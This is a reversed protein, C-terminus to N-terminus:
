LVGGGLLKYLEYLFKRDSEDVTKVIIELLRAYDFKGCDEVVLYFPSIFLLFEKLFKRASDLRSRSLLIRIGEVDVYRALKSNEKTHIKFSYKPYLERELQTRYEGMGAARQIDVLCYYYKKNISVRRVPCDGIVIFESTFIHDRSVNPLDDPVALEPRLRTPKFMMEELYADVAVAFYPNLWQAFRIALKRDMWTGQENPSGGQRVKVLDALVCKKAESEKETLPIRRVALKYDSLAGIYDKTEKLVLFDKPFKGFRKAMQTANVMVNGDKVEVSFSNHDIKVLHLGTAPQLKQKKSM